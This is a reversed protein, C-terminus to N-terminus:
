CVLENLTPVPSIRPVQPAVKVTSPYPNGVHLFGGRVGPEMLHQPTDPDRTSVDGLANAEDRFAELRCNGIQGQPSSKGQHQLAEALGCSAETWLAITDCLRRAAGKLM